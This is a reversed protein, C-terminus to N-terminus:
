ALGRNATRLGRVSSRSSARLSWRRADIGFPRAAFRSHPTFRSHEALTISYMGLALCAAEDRNALRSRLLPETKPLRVVPKPLEPQVM